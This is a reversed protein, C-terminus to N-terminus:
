KNRKNSDRSKMYSFEGITNGRRMKGVRRPLNPTALGVPLSSERTLATKGPATGSRDTTDLIYHLNTLSSSLAKHLSPNQQLTVALVDSVPNSEPTLQSQLQTGNINM